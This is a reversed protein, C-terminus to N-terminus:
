NIPSMGCDVEGNFEKEISAIVRNVIGEVSDGSKLKNVINEILLNYGEM